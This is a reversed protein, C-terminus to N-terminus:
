KADHHGVKETFPRDKDGTFFVLLKVTDQGVNRGNHARDVM